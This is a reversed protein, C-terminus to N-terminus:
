RRRELQAREDPTWPLSREQAARACWSRDEACARLFAEKATDFRGARLAVSGVAYRQVACTGPESSRCSHKELVKAAKEEWRTPPATPAREASEILHSAVVDCAPDNGLRCPRLRTDDAVFWAVGLALAAAVGALPVLDITRFDRPYPVRRVLIFMVVVAAALVALGLLQVRRILEDTNDLGGFSLYRTAIWGIAVLGAGLAARALLAAARSRGGLGAALAILLVGFALLPPERELVAGGAWVYAVCTAGLLVFIASVVVHM